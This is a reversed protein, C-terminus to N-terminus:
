GIYSLSMCLWKVEWESVKEWHAASYSSYGLTDPQVFDPMDLKQYSKWFIKPYSDAFRTTVSISIFHFPVKNQLLSIWMTSFSIYSQMSPLRMYVWGVKDSSTSFSYSSLSESGLTSGSLDLQLKKKALIIVPVNDCLYNRSVPWMKKNLVNRRAQERSRWNVSIVLTCFFHGKIPLSVCLFPLRTGIWCKACM